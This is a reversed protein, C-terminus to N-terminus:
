KVPHTVPLNSSLECSLSKERRQHTWITHRAWGGFPLAPQKGLSLAFGSASWGGAHIVSGFFSHREVEKGDYTKTNHHKILCPFSEKVM